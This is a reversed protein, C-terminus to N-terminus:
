KARHKKKERNSGHIRLEIAEEMENPILPSPISLAKSPM